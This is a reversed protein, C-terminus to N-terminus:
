NELKNYRMLKVFNSEDPSTRFHTGQPLIILDDKELALRIWVNEGDRVDFYTSGDIVFRAEEGEMTQETFFEKLKDDYVVGFADPSLEITQRHNYHRRHAIEDVRDLPQTPEIKTYLLGFQALDTETKNKGTHHPTRPDQDNESYIYARMSFVLPLYSFFLFLLFKM